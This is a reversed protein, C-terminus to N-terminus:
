EHRENLKHLVFGVLASVIIVSGILAVCAILYAFFTEQSLGFRTVMMWLGVACAILASYMSHRKNFKFSVKKM